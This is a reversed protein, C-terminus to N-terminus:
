GAIEKWVLAICAVVDVVVVFVQLQAAYKVAYRVGLAAGLMAGLSMAGAHPWAVQGRAIFVVATVVSFIAVTGVKLANARVLNLKAVSGLAFLLILGVGAQLFGGYLGSLFLWFTSGPTLVLREAPDEVKKKGRRATWLGLFAVGLLVGILLFRMVREPTVTAALSGFLAGACSPGAARLLEQRQLPVHKSFGHAAVLSQALVPVRNTGNAFDAPLGTLMLARLTLLSGAGAATNVFGAALGAGALLAADLASIAHM